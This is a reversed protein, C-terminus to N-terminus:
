QHFRLLLNRARRRFTLLQGMHHGHLTQRRTCLLTILAADAVQGRVITPWRMHQVRVLNASPHRIPNPLPQAQTRGIGVNRGQAQKERVRHPLGVLDLTQM